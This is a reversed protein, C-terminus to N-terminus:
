NLFHAQELHYLLIKLESEKLTGNHGVSLKIIHGRGVTLLNENLQELHTKDQQSIISDLIVFSDNNRNKQSNCVLIQELGNELKKFAEIIILSKQYLPITEIKILCLTSILSEIIM